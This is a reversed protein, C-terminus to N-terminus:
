SVRGFFLLAIVVGLIAGAAVQLPTHGLIEKLREEPNLNPDELVEIIQNIVAAQKGAELRVNAADYMVIFSFVATIAFLVNDYGYQQGISVTLTVVFSSHSSPMGGAAFFKRFDLKHEYFLTVAVKLAQAVFWSLIAAWLIQNNSFQKFYEM